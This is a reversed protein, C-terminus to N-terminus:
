GRGRCYYFIDSKQAMKMQNYKIYTGIQLNISFLTELRVDAPIVRRTLELAAGLVAALNESGLRLRPLVLPRHVAHPQRDLAECM